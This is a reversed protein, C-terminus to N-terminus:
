GSKQPTPNLRSVRSRLLPRDYRSKVRAVGTYRCLLYIFNKLIVLNEHVKMPEATDSGDVIWLNNRARTIAVYLFKLQKRSLMLLLPSRFFFTLDCTVYRQVSARTARKRSPQLM